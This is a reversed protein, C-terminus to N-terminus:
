RAEDIHVYRQTVGRAAHGRAGVALVGPWRTGCSLIGALRDANGSWLLSCPPRRERSPLATSRRAAGFACTLSAGAPADAYRRRLRSASGLTDARREGSSKIKRSPDDGKPRSAMAARRAVRTSGPRRLRRAASRSLCAFTPKPWTREGYGIAAVLDRCRAANDLSEIANDTQYRV